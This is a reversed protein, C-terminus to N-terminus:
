FPNIFRLNTPGFFLVERENDKLKILRTVLGGAVTSNVGHTVSLKKISQNPNLYYDRMLKAEVPTFVIQKEM